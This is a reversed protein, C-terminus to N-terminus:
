LHGKRGRLLTRTCCWLLDPPLSPGTWVRRTHSGQSTQVPRTIPKSTDLEMGATQGTVVSVPRPLSPQAPLVSVCM